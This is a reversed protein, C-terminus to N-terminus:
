KGGPLTRGATQLRLLLLEKLLAPRLIGLALGLALRQLRLVGVVELELVGREEALDGDAEAGEEKEEEEGEGKGWSGLRISERSRVSRAESCAECTALYAPLDSVLWYAM